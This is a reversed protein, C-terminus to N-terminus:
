EKQIYKSFINLNATKVIDRLWNFKPFRPAGPGSYAVMASLLPKSGKIDPNERLTVAWLKGKVVTDPALPLTQGQQSIDAM